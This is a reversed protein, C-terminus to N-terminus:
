YTNILVYIKKDNQTNQTNKYKKNRMDLCIKQGSFLVSSPVSLYKFNRLTYINKEKRKIERSSLNMNYVDYFTM